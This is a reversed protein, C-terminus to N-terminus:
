RLFCEKLNKDDDEEEEEEEKGKAPPVKSILSRLAPQKKNTQRDKEILCVSVKNKDVTCQATCQAFSRRTNTYLQQTYLEYM